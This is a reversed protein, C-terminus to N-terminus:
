HCGGRKHWGKDSSRKELDSNRKEPAPLRTGHVWVNPKEIDPFPIEEGEANFILPMWEPHDVLVEMVPSTRLRRVNSELGSVRAPTIEVVKQSKLGPLCDQVDVGNYRKVFANCSKVSRFNIFGYGINCENKFDMPLYVFDFQGQFNCRLQEVLMDRSYKNPINRMMVTTGAMATDEASKIDAHASRKKSVERRHAVAVATTEPSVWKGWDRLEAPASPEQEPRFMEDRNGWSECCAARLPAGSDDVLQQSTAVGKRRPNVGELLASLLRNTAAMNDVPDAVGAEFMETGGWLDDGFANYMDPGCFVEDAIAFGNMALAGSSTELEDNFAPAYMAGNTCGNWCEDSWLQVSAMSIPDFMGMDDMSAAGLPLYQADLGDEAYFESGVAESDGVHAQSQTAEAENELSKGGDPSFCSEAAKPRSHCARCLYWNCARCDMVRDGRVLPKLCGDCWGGVTTYDKLSHGNPCLMDAKNMDSQMLTAEIATEEGMVQVFPPVEGLQTEDLMALPVLM